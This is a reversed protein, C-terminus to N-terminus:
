KSVKIVFPVDEGRQDIVNHVVVRNTYQYSCFLTYSIIYVSM